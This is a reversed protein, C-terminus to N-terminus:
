QAILWNHYLHVLCGEPILKSAATRVIVIERVIVIADGGHGRLSPSCGLVAYPTLSQRPVDWGQTKKVSGMSHRPCTEPEAWSLASIFRGASKM